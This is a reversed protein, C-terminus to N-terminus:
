PAVAAFLGRAESRAQETLATLGSGAEAEAWGQKALWASVDQAGVWCRSRIEGQWGSGLTECAVSRNRIFLRQQTRAMAGCPWAGGSADPCTREPDTAKIDALRIRQEAGFGLIGAQLSNPRHLLTVRASEATKEESLPQRAEIRELNGAPAFAPYAFVDPEIPRVTGQARESGADPTGAPAMATATQAVDAAGETEVTPAAAGTEPLDLDDLNPVELDQMDYDPPADSLWHGANAVLYAWVFLGGIGAITILTRRM